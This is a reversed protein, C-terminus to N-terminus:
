PQTINWIGCSRQGNRQGHVDLNSEHELQQLYHQLSYQPDHTEKLKPKMLADAQSRSQQTMHHNQRLMSFAMYSLGVAFMIRLPSSSFANGKLDPVLCPHRSGGNKNLMTKSIRAVDILSSFSTFLIWILFCNFSDSNASSMVSYM